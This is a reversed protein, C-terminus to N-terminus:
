RTPLGPQASWACMGLLSVDCLWKWDSSYGTGACTSWVCKFVWLTRPPEKQLKGPPILTPLPFYNPCAFLAFLRCVPCCSCSVPKGRAVDFSSRALSQTVIPLIENPSQLWCLESTATETTFQNHLHLIFVVVGSPHLSHSCSHTLSSSHLSHFIAPRLSKSDLALKLVFRIRLSEPEMRALGWMFWLCMSLFVSM